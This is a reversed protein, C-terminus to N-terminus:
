YINANRRTLEKGIGVYIYIHKNYNSASYVTPSIWLTTNYSKTGDWIRASAHWLFWLAKFNALFSMMLATTVYEYDIDWRKGALSQISVSFEGPQFFCLSSIMIGQM